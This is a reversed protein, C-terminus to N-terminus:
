FRYEVGVRVGTITFGSENPTFAPLLPGSVGATRPAIQTTNVRTDIQEGARVVNSLYAFDYGVYTRLHTTVQCGLRVGVWPLVAFEDREYRGINSPQTLLGGAYVTAPGGPPTITTSGNIDITQHNVGLAIGSRVGLYYHSFRREFAFGINVGYFNNTTSFHDNVVFQTGPAVNQQGPLSTLNETINLNDSVNLYYFGLLVDFRGCPGCCCNSIYNPNIGWVNTDSTVSVSGSLIGPFSVLQTDPFSVLQTDPAGTTANFFPRTLITTGPSGVSYNENSDGLYFFNTEFGRTQCEDCWFGFNFYFGSRWDNNLDSTPFLVRTGPQGLVGATQRPTGVPATTV